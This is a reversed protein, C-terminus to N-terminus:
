YFAELAASLVKIGSAAKVPIGDISFNVISM